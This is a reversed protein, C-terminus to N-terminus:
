KKQSETYKFKSTQKNINRCKTRKKNPKSVEEERDVIPNPEPGPDACLFDRHDEVCFPRIKEFLYKKRKWSLGEPVISPPFDNPPDIYSTIDIKIKPGDFINQCTVKGKDSPDSNFEFDNYTTINKIPKWKKKAFYGLWDHLPVHVQGQEDGTLISQNVKSVPTSDNIIKVM